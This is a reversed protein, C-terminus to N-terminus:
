KRDDSNKKIILEDGERLVGEQIAAYKADTTEVIVPVKVPRTRLVTVSGDADLAGLPVLLKNKHLGTEIAVDCTMGPLLTLDKQNFDVLVLFQGANAYISRVRGKEVVNRQGEFSLRAEQGAKISSIVREDMSLELYLSNMDVVTMIPTQPNVLEGIEFSVASVLGDFPAKKLFGEIMVLNDGKKVKDGIRVFRKELLSPVATKLNFVVDAKVTGVAYAVVLIDGRIVKVKEYESRKKLFITVTAILAAVVLAVLFWKYKSFYSRM